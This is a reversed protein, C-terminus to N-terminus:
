LQGEGMHLIVQASDTSECALFPSQQPKSLEAQM